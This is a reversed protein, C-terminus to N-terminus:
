SSAGSEAPTHWDAAKRIRWRDREAATIRLKTIAIEDEPTDDRISYVTRVNLTIDGAKTPKGASVVVSLTEDFPTMRVIDYPEFIEDDTLPRGWGTPAAVAAAAQAMEDIGTTLATIFLAASTANPFEGVITPTTDGPRSFALVPPRRLNRANPAPDRPGVYVSTRGFQFQQGESAKVDPRPTNIKM